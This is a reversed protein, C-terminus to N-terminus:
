PSAGVLCVTLPQKKAQSVKKIQIDQSINSGFLAIRDSYKGYMCHLKIMNHIMSHTREWTAENDHFLLLTAEPLRSRVM